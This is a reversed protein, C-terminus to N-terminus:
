PGRSSARSASTLSAYPAPGTSSSTALKSTEPPSLPSPLRVPSHSQLQPSLALWHSGTESHCCHHVGLPCSRLKTVDLGETIRHNQQLVQLIRLLSGKEMFPSIIWLQDQVCFCCYCHLVNVHNCLKMSNVEKWLDSINSSANELSLVKIAVIRNTPKYRGKYM